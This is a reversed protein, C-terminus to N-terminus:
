IHFFLRLKTVLPAQEKLHVQNGQPPDQNDHPPAGENAIQQKVRRTAARRSTM